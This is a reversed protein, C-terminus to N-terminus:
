RGKRDEKLLAYVCLDCIGQTNHGASRLTGEYRLGCKRMVGGSHPNNADHVAEIRHFGVEDFLFDIVAKLAESTIGKHWWPKGICYGIHASAIQPDIDNIVGISGIPEQPADKFTIAWQYYDPQAYNETWARLVAESVSPDAHAPWSLFRTVDEDSAWNRYMAEADEVTFPRLLLRETRISKTGQHEM